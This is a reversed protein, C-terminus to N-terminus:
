SIKAHPMVSLISLTVNLGTITLKPVTFDNVNKFYFKNYERKVICIYWSVPKLIKSTHANVISRHFSVEYVNHPTYSVYFIGNSVDCWMARNVSYITQYWNLSFNLVSLNGRNSFKTVLHVVTVIQIEHLM